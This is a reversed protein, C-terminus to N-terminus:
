QIIKDRDQIQYETDMVTGPVPLPKHGGQSDQSSGPPGYGEPCLDQSLTPLTTSLYTRLAMTEMRDQILTPYSPTTGVGEYNPQFELIELDYSVVSMNRDEDDLRQALKTFFPRSWDVYPM